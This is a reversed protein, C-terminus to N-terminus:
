GRKPGPEPGIEPSAQLDLRGIIAPLDEMSDIVFDADGLTDASRFGYSVAVTAVGAAKGAEIDFCSDGVMVTEGPVASLVGMAQLLPEPSPKNMATSDSGLVLDFYRLLGLDSLLKKSMAERKNSVVAKKRPGLEELVGVVGPYPISNDSLHASYHETFRKLVDDYVPSDKGGVVKSILKSVGEGVLSTTETRTLRPMNYPGTAYNLANTLDVATDVLTGDLDFMVLRIM